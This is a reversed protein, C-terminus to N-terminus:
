SGAQAPWTGAILGRYLEVYRNVVVPLSYEAEVRARAASGLSRALSQNELIQVIANSWAGPDDKPLLLGSSGRGLLDSNGGIETALCPLGTAMAELLSNSMGEAVSPLVFVDAARLIEAPEDLPGTFQVRDSVRLERVREELRERETGRGVLILNAATRRAVEPWADLLLDLNKQRHLRGTFIVRPRPLLSGEYRTPGPRFEDADVGSATRAIRDPAVGLDRWQREIDESIAAFATNRFIARRLLGFGRTRALEEAEGYYGSSAPQILTPVRGYLGGGLGTAVAEWLGQHTHIIDYEGRLSRLARIASAVFSLGFLPGATSARIWRHISVGEVEEDVLPYGPVDRTIVRVAHGRRVLEIGQAALAQREAGSAFPHFYSVVYCVRIPSPAANPM